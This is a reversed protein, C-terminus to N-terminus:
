SSRKDQQRVALAMLQEITGLEKEHVINQATILLGIISTLSVLLGPIM